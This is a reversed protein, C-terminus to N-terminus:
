ALHNSTAVFRVLPLKAASRSEIEQIEPRIEAHLDRSLKAKAIAPPIDHLHEVNWDRRLRRRFSSAQPLQITEAEAQM